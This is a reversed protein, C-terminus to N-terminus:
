LKLALPVCDVTSATPHVFSDEVPFSSVYSGDTANHPMPIPEVAEYSSHAPGTNDSVVEIPRHIETHNDVATETPRDIATPREIVTSRDIETPRETDIPREIETTLVWLFRFLEKLSIILLQHKLRQLPSALCLKYFLLTFINRSVSPRDSVSFLPVRSSSSVSLNREPFLLQVFSPPSVSNTPSSHSSPVSPIVLFLM